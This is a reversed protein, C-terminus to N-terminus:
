AALGMSDLPNFDSNKYHGQIGWDEDKISSISLDQHLGKIIGMDRSGM